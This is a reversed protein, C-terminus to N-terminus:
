LMKWNFLNMWQNVIKSSNDIKIINFTNEYLTDTITTVINTRLNSVLMGSPIGGYFLVATHLYWYILRFCSKTDLDVM